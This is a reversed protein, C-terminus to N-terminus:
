HKPRRAPSPPHGGIAGHGPDLSLRPQWHHLSTNEGGTRGASVPRRIISRWQRQDEGWFGKLDEDWLFGAIAGAQLADLRRKTIKGTAM